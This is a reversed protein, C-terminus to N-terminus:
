PAHVGRTTASDGGIGRQHRRSGTLTAEFKRVPPTRPHERPSPESSERNKESRGRVQPFVKRVGGVVHPHEPTNAGHYAPRPHVNPAHACDLHRSRRRIAPSRFQVVRESHGRRVQVRHTQKQTPVNGHEGAHRPSLSWERRMPELVRGGIDRLNARPPGPPRLGIDAYRGPRPRADVHHVHINVRDPGPEGGELTRAGLTQDIPPRPQHPRRRAPDVGVVRNLRTTLLPRPLHRGLVDVKAAITAVDDHRRRRDSISVPTAAHVPRDSDGGM